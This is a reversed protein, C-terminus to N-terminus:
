EQNPVLWVFITGIIGILAIIMEESLWSFDWGFHVTLVGLVGMVAAIYAKNYHSFDVTM